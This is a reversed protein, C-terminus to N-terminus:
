AGQATGGLSAPRRGEGCFVANGARLGRMTVALKERRCIRQATGGLPAPRRGERRFVTDGARLGRMFGELFSHMM